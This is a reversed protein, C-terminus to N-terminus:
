LHHLETCATCLHSKGSGVQGCFLLWGDMSDAYAMARSKIEHQWTEPTQFKDFTMERIVNQLGSKEMKWFSRRSKMCSCEAIALGGDEKPYAINGRNLCKPCDMGSLNGETKNYMEAKIKGFAVPDFPQELSLGYKSLDLKEM